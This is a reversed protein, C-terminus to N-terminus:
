YNSRDFVVDGMDKLYPSNKILYEELELESNFTRNNLTYTCKM